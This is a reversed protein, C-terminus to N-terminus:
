DLMPLHHKSTVGHFRQGTTALILILHFLRLRLQEYQCHEKDRSSGDTAPRFKARQCAVAYADERKGSDEEGQAKVNARM